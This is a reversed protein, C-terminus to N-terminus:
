YTMYGAVNIKSPNKHSKILGRGWAYDKNVVLYIHAVV